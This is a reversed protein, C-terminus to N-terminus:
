SIATNPQPLGTLRQSSCAPLSQRALDVPTDWDRQCYAKVLDATERLSAFEDPKALQILDYLLQVDVLQHNTSLQWVLACLDATEPAPWTSDVLTWHFDAADECIIHARSHRRLFEPLQENEVLGCVTANAVSAFLVIPRDAPQARLRFLVMAIPGVLQQGAWVLHDRDGPSAPDTVSM